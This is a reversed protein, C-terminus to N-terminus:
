PKDNKYKKWIIENLTNNELQNINTCLFPHRM